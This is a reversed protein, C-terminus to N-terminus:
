VTKTKKGRCWPCLGYYYIQSQEVVFGPPVSNVPSPAPQDMDFIHDCKRCLFHRHPLSTWEYNVVGSRITLARVEGLRVLLELTNYVTSFSTTPYTEKLRNYIEEATPHGSWNRILEIIARRQPTIKVKRANLRKLILESHNM